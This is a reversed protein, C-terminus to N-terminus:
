VNGGGTERTDKDLWPEVIFIGHEMRVFWLRDFGEAVSPMELRKSTGALAIDPVRAKGTRSRNRELCVSLISQFFYGEVEYGYERAAKIYRARDEALPNTNDVVFSRQEELCSTLLIREKNRTHLSDLNIHVYESMFRHYFTSKGSAQLGMFLIAKLEPTAM